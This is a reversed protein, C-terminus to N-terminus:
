QITAGESSDFEDPPIVKPPNYYAIRYFAQNEISITIKITEPKVGHNTLENLAIILYNPMVDWICWTNPTTEMSLKEKQFSVVEM